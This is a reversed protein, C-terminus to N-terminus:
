TRRLRKQGRSRAVNTAAKRKVTTPKKAEVLREGKTTELGLPVYNVVSTVMAYEVSSGQTTDPLARVDILTPQGCVGDEVARLRMTEIGGEIDMELIKKQEPKEQWDCICIM